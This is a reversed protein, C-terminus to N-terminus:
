EWLVICSFLCWFHQRRARCKQWAAAEFQLLVRSYLPQYHKAEMRAQEKEKM